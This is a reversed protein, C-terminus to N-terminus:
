GNSREMYVQASKLLEVTPLMGIGTNCTTCLLGRICLGCTKDSASCCSHDHDVSLYSGEPPPEGCVACVGDQAALLEDYREVTINYRFKLVYGRAVLPDVPKREKRSECIKCYTSWGPPGGASRVTVYFNEEVPFVLLCKRCTRFGEPARDKFVSRSGGLPDGYRRWKQYHKGCYDKAYQQDECKDVSCELESATM